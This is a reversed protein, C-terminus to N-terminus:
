DANADTQHRVSSYLRDLFLAKWEEQRALRAPDPEMAEFEDPDLIKKKELYSELRDARDYAVALEASLELVMALLHDMGDRDFFNVRKGKSYRPLKTTEAKSVMMLREISM